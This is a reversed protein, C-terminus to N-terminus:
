NARRRRVVLGFLLVGTLMFPSLDGAGGDGVRCSCGGGGTYHPATGGGGTPPSAGGTGLATTTGGAGGTGPAGAAGTMSTPTPFLMEETVYKQNNAKIGAQIMATNDVVPMGEGATERKWATAVAPLKALPVVDPTKGDCTTGKSGARMWIMRGDALELRIPANCAMYAMNGCLTRIVATHVNSLDPLDKNEFFFADQNMEEPSLFTNLRTLYPHGDILTQANLRPTVISMDIADTLGVLDYPPFAFQNWYLQLNGYFQSETVNMAKVADPMPIYKALLPLMLSDNVLGMAILQQVYVPPIMAMRLATLDIQGNTFVSSRAVTSPGAYEAIFANGGAENAAQSVLGMPGFYSSGQNWWDIRAEDIKLELFGRPVVRKDSLVWVLVPMDPNAAIATLRLPVCPETGRFTLVIPQISRVGLGNLLKLAVFYKKERVYTDILAGAADSVVYGNDSLWMKLAVPDTSQIIAAGFPGVAGQFLVNVGGPNVAGGSTGAAGTGVGTGTPNGAQPPPSPQQICTGSTEYSAQFRPQTVGALASFLRDTGTTLVPVAEVPVVWSFKAADGTYLIQIHAALTPAGGGPDKTIGFVVNEGNQAVPLPAFPDPPRANCFLGGCARGDGQMAVMAFGALAAILALRAPLCRSDLTL